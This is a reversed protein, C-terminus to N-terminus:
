LSIQYVDPSSEPGLHHLLESLTDQAGPTARATGNFHFQQASSWTGSGELLLAGHQTSLTAQLTNPLANIDIQYDGLPYVLSMASGAHTWRATANGQVSQNHYSLQPSAIELSGSFQAPKLFPSLEGIVAAPLPLLLNTIVVSKGTITFEIPSASPLHDWSAILNLQGQLLGPLKIKWNFTHLALTTDKGTHLVPTARGQWISGQINALSIRDHSWLRVPRDLLSAPATIFLLAAYCGAAAIYFSKSM